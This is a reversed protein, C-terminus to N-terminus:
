GGAGEEDDDEGNEGEEEEDDDDEEISDRAVNESLSSATDKPCDAPGSFIQLEVAPILSEIVATQVCAKRDKFAVEM